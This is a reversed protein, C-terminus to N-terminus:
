DVVCPGLRPHAGIRDIAALIERQEVEPVIQVQGIKEPIVFNLSNGRVLRIEDLRECAALLRPRPVRPPLEYAHLLQYIREATAADCIRRAEGVATAVALGFGVAEGHLLREYSLETELPHGFTHGLNLV